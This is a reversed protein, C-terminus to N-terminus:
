DQNRDPEKEFVNTLFSLCLLLFYYFLHLRPVSQTTQNFVAQQYKYWSTEPISSTQSLVAAPFSKSEQDKIGLSSKYVRLQKYVTDRVQENNSM